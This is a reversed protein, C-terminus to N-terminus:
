WATDAGAVADPQPVSSLGRNQYKYTPQRTPQKILLDPETQM